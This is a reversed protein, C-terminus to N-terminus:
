ELYRFRKIQGLYKAEQIKAAEVTETENNM